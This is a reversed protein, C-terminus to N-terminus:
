QRRLFDAVDQIAEANRDVNYLIIKFDRNRDKFECTRDFKNLIESPLPKYANNKTLEISVYSSRDGAIGYIMVVKTGRRKFSVMKEADHGDIPNKFYDVLENRDFYQSFVDDLTNFMKLVSERSM